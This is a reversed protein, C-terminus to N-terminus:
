SKKALTKSNGSWLKLFGTTTKLQVWAEVREDANKPILDTIFGLSFSATLAAGGRRVPRTKQTEIYQVFDIHDKRGAPSLRYIIWQRGTKSPALGLLAPNDRAIEFQMQREFVPADGEVNPRVEIDLTPISEKRPVVKQDVNFALAYQGADGFIIDGPEITAMRLMTMLPIGACSALLTMCFAAVFIFHPRRLNVSLPKLRMM